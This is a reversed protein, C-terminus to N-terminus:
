STPCAADLAETIIQRMKEAAEDLADKGEITETCSYDTAELIINYTNWDARRWNQYKEASSRVPISYKIYNHDSLSPIQSVHWGQVMRVTDPSAITLDLVERRNSVVFTPM